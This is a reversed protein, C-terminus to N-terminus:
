LLNILKETTVEPVDDFKHRKETEIFREKLESLSHTERLEDVFNKVNINEIAISNADGQNYGESLFLPEMPGNGYEDVNLTSNLIPTLDAKSERILNRGEEDCETYIRILGRHSILMIDSYGGSHKLFAYPNGESDAGINFAHPYKDLLAESIELNQKQVENLEKISDKEPTQENPNTEAYVDKVEEATKSSFESQAFSREQEM